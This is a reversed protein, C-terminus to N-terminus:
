KPHSYQSAELIPVSLGCREDTQLKAGVWNMREALGELPSASAHVGNDGVNPESKLGLEKWQEAAPTPPRKTM